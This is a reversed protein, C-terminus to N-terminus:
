LNLEATPVRIIQPTKKAEKAEEEREIQVSEGRINAVMSRMEKLHAISEEADFNEYM